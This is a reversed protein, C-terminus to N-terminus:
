AIFDAWESSAEAGDAGTRVVTLWNVSSGDEKGWGFAREIQQVTPEDGYTVVLVRPKQELGREKFEAQLKTNV